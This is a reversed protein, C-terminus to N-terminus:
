AAEGVEDAHAVLCPHCHVRGYGGCKTLDDAHLCFPRIKRANDAASPVVPSAPASAEGTAPESAMSPNAGLVGDGPETHQAEGPLPAAASADAAETVHSDPSGGKRAPQTDVPPARYGSRTGSPGQTPEATAVARGAQMPADPGAPTSGSVNLGHRDKGAATSETDASSALDTGEATPGGVTNEQSVIDAPLEQEIIEGTEPDHEPNGERVRSSLGTEIAKTYADVAEETAALAL